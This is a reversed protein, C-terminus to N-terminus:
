QVPLQVGILIRLGSACEAASAGEHDIGAFVTRDIGQVILDERLAKLIEAREAKEFGPDSPVGQEAQDAFLGSLHGGGM